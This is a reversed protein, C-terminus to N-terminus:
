SDPLGVPAVTVTNMVALSRQREHNAWTHHIENNTHLHTQKLQVGPGQTTGCQQAHM